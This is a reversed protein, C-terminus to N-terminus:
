KKVYRSAPGEMGSDTQTLKIWISGIDDAVIEREQLREVNDRTDSMQSYKPNTIFTAIGCCFARLITGLGTNFARQRLANLITMGNYWLQGIIWCVM